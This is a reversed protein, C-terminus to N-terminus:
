TSELFTFSFNQFRCLIQIFSLLLNLETRNPRCQLMPQTVLPIGVPSILHKLITWSCKLFFYWISKRQAFNQEKQVTRLPNTGRRNYARDWVPIIRNARKASKEPELLFTWAWCLPIYKLQLLKETHRIKVTQSTVIIYDSNRSFGCCISLGPARLMHTRILHHNHLILLLIANCENCAPSGTPFCM